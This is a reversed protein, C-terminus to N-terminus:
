ALQEVGHATVRHSVLPLPQSASDGIVIAQELTSRGVAIDEKSRAHITALSQGKKVHHGPKATIVFGVSPDVKEEMNRRGGGLAIVGYGIARPDVAQVVGDRKAVFPERHRAQPLRTPDRVIGTDGGQASVIEEFKALAKGSNISDRMLTHAGEESSAVTGLVLM